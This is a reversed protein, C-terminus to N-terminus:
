TEEKEEAAAKLKGLSYGERWAVILGGAVMPFYYCAHIVIAISLATDPPIKMLFVMAERNFAHFTGFFGPPGPISAAAAGVVLLLLCQMFNFHVSYALGTLWVPALNVAWIVGSLALTLLMARPRGLIHLGSAFRHVAAVLAQSWQEPRDGLRQALWSSHRAIGVLFALVRSLLSVVGETRANLIILFAFMVAAMLLTGAGLGHVTGQLDYQKAGITIMVREKPFPVLILVAALSMLMVLFDFLREVVVTALAASYSISPEKKGILFVRMLEGARMPFINNGMYCVLIANWVNQLGTKGCHNMIYQWRLSRFFMILFYSAIVPVLLWLKVQRLAVLFQGPNEITLAIYAICALGILLGAWFQWRKM